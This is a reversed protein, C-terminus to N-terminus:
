TTTKKKNETSFYHGKDPVFMRVQLQTLAETQALIWKKICKCKRDQPREARRVEPGEFGRGFTQELLILVFGNLNADLNPSPHFDLNLPM